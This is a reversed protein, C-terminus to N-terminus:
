AALARAAGRRAARRPPTPAHTIVSDDRVTGADKSVASGYRPPCDTSSSRSAPAQCLMTNPTTPTASIAAPKRSTSTSVGPLSRSRIQTRRLVLAPAAAPRWGARSRRRDDEGRDQGAVAVEGLPEGRRDEEASRARDDHRQGEQDQVPEGRALEALDDARSSGCGAARTLAAVWKPAASITQAQMAQRRSARCGADAAAAAAPDDESPLPRGHGRRLAASGSRLTAPAVQGTATATARLRGLAPCSAPGSPPWHHRRGAGPDAQRGLGGANLREVDAGGASRRRRHTRREGPKRGEAGDGRELRSTTRPAKWDSGTAKATRGASRACIKTLAATSRSRAPRGARRGASEALRGRREGGREAAGSDSRVVSASRRPRSAGAHKVRPSRWPRSGGAGGDLVGAVASWGASSRRGPFRLNGM